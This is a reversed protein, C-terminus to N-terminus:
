IHQKAYPNEGNRKLINPMHIVFPRKSTNICIYFKNTKGHQNSFQLAKLKKSGNM